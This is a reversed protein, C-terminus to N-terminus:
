VHARGIEIGETLSDGLTVINMNQFLVENLDLQVKLSPQYEDKDLAMKNTHYYRSYTNKRKNLPDVNDTQEDQIYPEAPHSDINSIYVTGLITLGLCIFLIRRFTMYEGQTRIM